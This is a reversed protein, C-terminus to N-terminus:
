VATLKYDNAPNLPDQNILHSLANFVVPLERKLEEPSEFFHEVCAPFFEHETAVAYKRLVSKGGDRIWKSEVAAIKEWHEYWSAVEGGFMNYQSFKLMLAHSWEHLGLNLNDDEIQHGEVIHAWSLYMRDSKATAGRYKHKSSFLKFTNPYIHFSEYMPFTYDRLGYTLQIAASAVVVKIM